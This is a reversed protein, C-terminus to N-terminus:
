RRPPSTVAEEQGPAPFLEALSAEVGGALVALDPVRATDALFGFTLQDRYSLIGVSLDLNRALPVIPVAEELRAGLLHLPVPSGPVNTVVLNVFPQHHVARALAATVRAPARDALGLLLGTLDAQGAAKRQRMASAVVQLRRLPDPEEVPLPVIIAAVANGLAGRAAAARTSVPVLARAPHLPEGRRALLRRLGGAVAALVVDNVTAGAEAGAARTAALSVTVAELTRQRRVIPRNISMRPAVLGSGVLSGAGRVLHRARDLRGAPSRVLRAAQAALGSPLALADGLLARGAEAVGVGPGPVRAVPPLPGARRPPHRDLDMMAAAVDVGGIGDVMAHHTKQIMGVRGDALGDVLWVEWLPRSRDLLETHLEGALELLQRRGGPARVATVMVHHAIDFCPDDVWFPRGLGLPGAVPIQRYRPVLALRSEILDRVAGLRIRGHRDRLPRGEFLLASGVHMPTDPGELSLFGSDLASLRAHVSM